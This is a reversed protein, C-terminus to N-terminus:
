TSVRPANESCSQVHAPVEQGAVAPEMPADATVLEAVEQGAVAPEMSADATVVEAAVQGAVATEIQEDKTVVEAKVKAPEQSSSAGSLFFSKILSGTVRKAGGTAVAAVEVRALAEAVALDAPELDIKAAVMKSVVGAVLQDTAGKIFTGLSNAAGQEDDEDKNGAM